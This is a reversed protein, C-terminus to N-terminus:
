KEGVRGRVCVRGREKRAKEKKSAFLRAAGATAGGGAVVCEAHIKCEGLSSIENIDM